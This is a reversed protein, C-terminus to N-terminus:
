ATMPVLWLITIKGISWTGSIARPRPTRRCFYVLAASDSTAVNSELAPRLQFSEAPRSWAILQFSNASQRPLRASAPRSACPKGFDFLNKRPTSYSNGVGRQPVGYDDNVTQGPLSTALAM